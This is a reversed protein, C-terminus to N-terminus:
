AITIGKASMTAIDTDSFRAKLNEHLTITLTRYGASARDFSNNVFTNKLDDEYGDGLKSSDSFSLATYGSGNGLNNWKLQQLNYCRYFLYNTNTVKSTDFNSLDLEKIYNCYGFMEEMTTVNSTDFNSLNLSTLAACDDFMHSMNTVNSTNFSSVDLSTLKSCDYFMLRMTTVNSTNFNSVDISTLGGCKYFMGYMNTVNSTNFSSVDLSTLNKCDYFMDEMTTVNSTDPISVISTINPQVNFMYNASTWESIGLEALTTKYPSTTATYKTSNMRFTVSTGTFEFELVDNPEETKTGFILNNGKYIRAIPTSNKFVGIVEKNQRIIM